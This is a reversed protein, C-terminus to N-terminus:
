CLLSLALFLDTLATKTQKDKDLLRGLQLPLRGFQRTQRLTLGRRPGCEVKEFAEEKESRASISYKNVKTLLFAWFPLPVLRARGWIM